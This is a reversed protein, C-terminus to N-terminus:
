PRHLCTRDAKEDMNRGMKKSSSLVFGIRSSKREQIAVVVNQDNTPDVAVSGEAYTYQAYLKDGNPDRTLNTVKEIDFSKGFDKVKIKAIAYNKFGKDRPFM